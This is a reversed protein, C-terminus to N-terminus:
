EPYAAAFDALKSRFSTMVVLIRGKNADMFEILADVAERGFHMGHLGYAEEIVLVGDLARNCVELTKPRSQGIYPAVLGASVTGVVHGNRLLGLGRFLEGLARAMHSKGVGPSGVFLMHLEQPARVSEHDRQARGHAALLKGIERKVTDTGIVGNLGVLPDDLHNDNSM